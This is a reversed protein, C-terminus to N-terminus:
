INQANYFSFSFKLFHVTLVRDFSFIEPFVLVIFFYHAVAFVLIFNSFSLLFFKFVLVLVLFDDLVLIV